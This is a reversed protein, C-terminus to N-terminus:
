AVIARVRDDIAGAFPTFWPGPAYGSAWVIAEAAAQVDWAVDDDSRITLEPPTYGHSGVVFGYDFLQKTLGPNQEAWWGMVFMTAPTGTASLTDLISVAPEYGAGINFILAVRGCGPDGQSFGPSWQYSSPARGVASRSATASTEAQLPLPGLLLATVLLTLWVSSRRGIM